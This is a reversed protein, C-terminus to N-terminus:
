TMTGKLSPATKIHTHGAWSPIAVTVPNGTTILCCRTYIFLLRRELERVEANLSHFLQQPQNHLDARRDDL